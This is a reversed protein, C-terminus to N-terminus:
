SGIYPGGTWMEVGPGPRETLSGPGQQNRGDQHGEQTTAISDGPTVRIVVLGSIPLDADAQFGVPLSPQNPRDVDYEGALSGEALLVRWMAPIQERGPEATLDEVHLGVITRRDFTVAQRRDLDAVLIAQGAPIAGM